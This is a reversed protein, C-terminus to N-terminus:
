SAVVTTFTSAFADGDSVAGAIAAGFGGNTSGSVSAVGNKFSAKFENSTAVGFSVRFATALKGGQIQGLDSVENECFSLDSIRLREM